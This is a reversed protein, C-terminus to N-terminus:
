PVDTEMIWDKLIFLRKQIRCEIEDRVNKSGEALSIIIGDVEPLTDQLTYVPIERKIVKANRDIFYKIEVTNKLEHFLHEGLMGCGYIAATRIGSLQLYESYNINRERLYMWKDLIQLKRGAFNLNRTRILNRLFFGEMLWGQEIESFMRKEQVTKLIEQESQLMSMVDDSTNSEQTVHEYLVKENLSFRCGASLMCLWLFWDDAGNYYTINETWTMPISSKRLLVQGPSVIPNWAKLMLEKSKIIEFRNEESYFLRGAALAKCVVADNEGIALIQSYFYEPKIRDDQDLFLIYEGHCQMLGKVRAGHIGANQDSNIVFVNEYTSEWKRSIPANPSDNVFIIEIYADELYSQCDRIQRIIDAIYKEGYYVPVITSISKM